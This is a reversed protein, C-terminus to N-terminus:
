ESDGRMNVYGKDHDYTVVWYHGNGCNLAGADITDGTKIEKLKRKCRPCYLDSFM